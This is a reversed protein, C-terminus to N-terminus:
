ENSECTKTMQNLIREFEGFPLSRQVSFMTNHCPRWRFIGVLLRSEVWFTESFANIREYTFYVSVHRNIKLYHTIM